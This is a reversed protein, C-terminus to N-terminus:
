PPIRGCSRRPPPGDVPGHPVGAPTDPPLTPICALAGAEAVEVICGIPLAYLSGGLEFTLLRGEAPSAALSASM